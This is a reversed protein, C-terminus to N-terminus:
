HDGRGKPHLAHRLSLTLTLASIIDKRYPLTEFGGRGSVLAAQGENM